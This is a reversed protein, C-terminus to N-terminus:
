IDFKVFIRGISASYHWASLRVSMVFSITAKRLKAFAGLFLSLYREHCRAISPCNVIQTLYFIRTKLNECRHLQLYQEEAIHRRTVSFDAGSILPVSSGEDELDLPYRQEQFYPFHTTEFRRFGIVRQRLKMKWYLRITSPSSAPLQLGGVESRGPTSDLLYPIHQCHTM